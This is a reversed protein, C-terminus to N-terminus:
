GKTPRPRMSARDTGNRRPRVRAKGRGADDGKGPRGRRKRPLGEEDLIQRVRERSMGLPRAIEAISASPDAKYAAIVDGRRRTISLGLHVARSSVASTGRGLELACYRSGKQPYHRSMFADDAATWKKYNNPQSRDRRSAEYGAIWAARAMDIVPQNGPDSVLCYKGAIEVAAADAADRMRRRWNRNPHNTM